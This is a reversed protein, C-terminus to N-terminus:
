NSWLWSNGAALRTSWRIRNHWDRNPDWYFKRTKKRTKRHRKRRSMTESLNSSRRWDKTWLLNWKSNASLKKSKTSMLNWSGRLYIWILVRRRHCRFRRWDKIWFWFNIKMNCCYDTPLRDSCNSYGVSSLCSPWLWPLWSAVPYNTMPKTYRRRRKCFMSLQRWTTIQMRSTLKSRISWSGTENSWCLWRQSYNLCTMWQLTWSCSRRTSRNFTASPTKSKRIRQGSWRSRCSSRPQRRTMVYNKLNSM